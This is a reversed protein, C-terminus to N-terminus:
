LVLLILILSAGMVRNLRLEVMMCYLFYASAMIYYINPYKLLHDDESFYVDLLSLVIICCRLIFAGDIHTVSGNGILLVISGIVSWGILLRNM